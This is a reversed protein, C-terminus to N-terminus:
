ASLQGRDSNGASNRFHLAAQSFPASSMLRGLSETEYDGAVLRVTSANADVEAGWVRLPALLGLRQAEEASMEHILSPFFRALRRAEDDYDPPATLAVRVAAPDFTERLVAIRRATM